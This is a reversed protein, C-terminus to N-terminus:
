KKLRPAWFFKAGNGGCFGSHALKIGSDACGYGNPGALTRAGLAGGHPKQKTLARISKMAVACSRAPLATVNYQTGSQGQFQWSAGNAHGCLKGLSPPQGSSVAASATTAVVLAAFLLLLSLRTVHRFWQEQEDNLEKWNPAHDRPRSTV